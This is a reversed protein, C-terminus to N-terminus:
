QKCFFHKDVLEVIASSDFPKTFTGIINLEECVKSEQGQLLKGICIIPIFNKESIIRVLNIINDQKKFDRSTIILDPSDKGLVPEADIFTKPRHVTYGNNELQKQLDLGTIREPEIILINKDKKM